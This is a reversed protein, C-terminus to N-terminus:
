KSIKFSKFFVDRKEPDAYDDEKAKMIQYFRNGVMVYKAYIFLEGNNGHVRLAPYKGNLKYEEEFDIEADFSGFGGDKGAHLLMYPDAAEVLAAPYDSYAIMYATEGEEYYYMTMAIDGIETEVNEVEKTPKAPFVASFNGPKDNLKYQAFALPMALAFLLGFMTARRMLSPSIIM